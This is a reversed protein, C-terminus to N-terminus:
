PVPESRLYTLTFPLGSAGDWSLALVKQVTRAEDSLFVGQPRYTKAVGLRADPVFFAFDLTVVGMSASARWLDGDRGTRTEVAIEADSSREGGPNGEVYFGWQNPLSGDRFLYEALMKLDATRRLETIPQGTPGLVGAATAGWFLKLLWRELEEGSALFFEDGHPDPRTRLDKQYRRLARFIRAANGDLRSLATNHRTCLINSGMRSAPLRIEGGAPQWSLGIFRLPQGDGAELLVSESLWHENSLTTSCDNTVSAYCNNHSYGTRADTLLPTYPPLRWRGSARDAHCNGAPAGSGCPCPENHGPGWHGPSSFAVPDVPTFDPVTVIESLRMRSPQWCGTGASSKPLALAVRGPKLADM